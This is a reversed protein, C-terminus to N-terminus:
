STGESNTKERGLPSKSRQAGAPQLKTTPPSGASSANDAAEGSDLSALASFANKSTDKDKEDKKEKQIPPTNTRSSASSDDGPTGFLPKRTNSGRASAFMSSPGFKPPAQNSAQRSSGGRQQLRKIDDVGVLSNAAPPPMPGGGSFNRADGRGIPPRGGGGRRSAIESRMREQEKEQEAAVAQARVADLTTPGKIAGDKTHWRAKRLDVIDMLMFKLRSPLGETGIMSQIRTFYAEMMATGRENSDLAQGITKLLSTLSEVEAEDPVGETDLLKHVCQHMIRETLMGLKYLEGIFRVLGLGRRKAAAAIYYEDSLMAAEESEGEPKQPLDIKWGREFETQCRNLLYKRFLAGGVVVQGDKKVNEDKIEPSMSELMRKCFEAYMQAWHAEDTAKEFTLQIVQRLTRGDTEDKSQGAIALIQDAIKPFNNPTMKNLNSKVKRQVVDPAMHGDGGPAPGALGFAGQGISMPKWGTASPEIPKFNGNATIPMSKAEKETERATKGAKSGRTSGGRQSPTGRPSHPHAAGMGTSSPTRDMSKTATMLFGGPRQGAVLSALPNQMSRQGPPGQLANNAAKFRDQSTTGPPLTRGGQVNFDGMRTRNVSPQRAGMGGMPPNNARTSSSRAASTPETSDGMISKIKTEWDDDPKETFVGRFQMLFNRDYNFKGPPASTNLAPNPSVFGSPYAVDNIDLLRRASLLSTLQASRQPAEVQKATELKLAAPKPKAGTVKIPPPMTAESASTADTTEAAPPDSSPTSPTQKQLAAFLNTREKQSEDSEGEQLNKIRAEEAEEAEREARKMDEDATKAAEEEKRAQEEKEAQKKRQYAEEKEREEREIAEMEAEIRAFYEDEEQAKRAQEEADDQAKKAAKEANEAEAKAERAANEAEMQAKAAEQQKADAEEKEKLAQAEAAKKGEAVKAEDEDKQRKEEAKDAEMKKAIADKMDNRKEEDSKVSKSETRHHHIDPQSGSHPLPPTTLSSTNAPSSKPAPSVAQKSLDVINGNQDKIVIGGAKRQPKQFTASKPGPSATPRSPAAAQSVVPTTTPAQPRGMTSGPRDTASMASSTRSMSQPQQQNPYQGPFYQQGIQQHPQQPRPSSPPQQMYMQQAQQPNMNYSAYFQAINPDLFSQPPMAYHAQPGMSPPYGPYHQPYMPSGMPVQGQHQHVPQAAALAPSRASSHPSGPYQGLSRGPQQYGPNINQAGSRSQNPNPRYNNPAPSYPLQQSNYPSPYGGRGRNGQPPYGARGQGPVIGQNGFDNHTSQSSERRLHSTQPATPPLGQSPGGARMQRNPDEGNMSGFNM